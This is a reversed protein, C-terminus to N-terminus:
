RAHIESGGLAFVSLAALYHIVLERVVHPM